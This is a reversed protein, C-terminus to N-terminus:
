NTMKRATQCHFGDCKVTLPSFCRAVMVGHEKKTSAFFLIPTTPNM